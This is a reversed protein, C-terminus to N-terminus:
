FFLLPLHFLIMDHFSRPLGSSILPFLLKYSLTLAGKLGKSITEHGRTERTSRTKKEDIRFAVYKEFSLKRKMDLHLKGQSGGM